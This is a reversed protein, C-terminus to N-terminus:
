GDREQWGADSTCGVLGNVARLWNVILSLDLGDKALPTKGTM